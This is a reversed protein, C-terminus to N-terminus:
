KPQCGNTPPEKQKQKKIERLALWVRKSQEFRHKLDDEPSKPDDPTIGTSPIDWRLDEPYSFYHKAASAALFAERSLTSGTEEKFHNYVVDAEILSRMAECDDYHKSVWANVFAGSESVLDGVTVVYVLAHKIKSICDPPPSSESPFGPLRDDVTRLRIGPYYRVGHSQKSVIGKESLMRSFRVNSMPEYGDDSTKKRYCGYIIGCEARTTPDIIVTRSWFSGFTSVPVSSFYQLDLRLKLSSAFFDHALDALKRRDEITRATKMTGELQALAERVIAINQDM